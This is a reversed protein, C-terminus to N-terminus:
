GEGGEDAAGAARVEALKEQARTMFSSEGRGGADLVRISELLEQEAEALRGLELLTAGLGSRVVGIAWFDDGYEARHIALSREYLERSRDLQGAKRSLNGLNTLTVALSPSDAGYTRERVALSEQYLPLAEDFREQAELIAALNGIANLTQPHEDGLRNRAGALSETMLRGAEAFSGRAHLCRALNNMTNLLQPHDEPFISRGIDLEERFLQEAEEIQDRDTLILALNSIAKLLDPDTPELNARRWALTTRALPLAEDTRGREWLLVALNNRALQTEVNDLGFMETRGDAVERILQEAEGYRNTIRLSNSLLLKSTLTFAHGPGRNASDLAIARRLHKQASVQDGLAHATRGLIRRIAAEIAPDSPPEADLHEAHRNVVDIVKVDRGNEFQESRRWPDPSSLLDAMYGTVAEATAQESRATSLARAEADRATTMAALAEREADRAQTMQGLASTEADLARSMEGLASREADRARTMEVLATQESARARGVILLAAALGVVGLALSAVAAAGLGTGIPYRRAFKALRYPAGGASAEVPEHQLFRELDRGLAAASGYRDAAEPAMAKMTIRELDGRLQRRLADPTTLRQRAVRDLEDADMSSLRTTPREPRTSQDRRGDRWPLEGTLLRFLLVGLGHIDSATTVSGGALQEPSAYTPTLIRDQPATLETAASGTNDDGTMLRAIGFDLLKVRGDATVLLNGPKLDRHVVLKQHAAHVTDCAQIFLQIREPLSLGAEDAYVDIPQGDAVFEMALWPRGDPAAGGDLLRAIGPHELSALLRRERRFRELMADTDMGRKILKIAARQVYGEGPREGLYVRGMGGSGIERVIRWGGLEQGIMPDTDHLGSGAAGPLFQGARRHADLLSRVEAMVEVNATQRALFATRESEPLDLADAFLDDISRNPQTM